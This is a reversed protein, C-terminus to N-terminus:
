EQKDASTVKVIEELTTLGQSAKQIGDQRLTLMGLEMARKKLDFESVNDMILKKIEKDLVLTEVICVRGKYGSDFCFKCGAGKYFKKPMSDDIGITKRTEADPEYSKKCRQCIRRVLRQAVILVVSSSILFPELGMNVMRTIAGPATNTHITTLVLHGTLAAKVGIDLTELDRIEGVMIIDPDQRLMSRLTSAFTLGIDPKTNVQNIGKLDFELPDEATIINKDPSDISKLIAYLTTTKGSGTPGCVVLM